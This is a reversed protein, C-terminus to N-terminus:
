LTSPGSSRLTAASPTSKPRTVADFGEVQLLAEVLLSPAIVPDAPALLKGVKPDAVIDHILNDMRALGAPTLAEGRFLLTVVSAEGSDGFLENLEVLVEAVASGQPLTAETEPPPARRTAGAALVVTIIVLVLLTIYPRVTVLWSLGRLINRM